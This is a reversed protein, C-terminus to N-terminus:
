ARRIGVAAEARVRRDIENIAHFASQIAGEQWGPHYSIQDGILYHRGEPDQVRKFWRTRLEDSWRAACGLMHNMRQWPISVGNEIYRRYDAHVKEGQRLAFELREAPALRAIKDGTADAYTYAGLIVGKQRHIGHSPYWIQVIDQMTWSIGGYIREREWFREKAQLGIKLLKGRPVATFAASYDAPFNHTIGALLQMPISNLCFDASVARREGRRRYVVAVGRERLEISEVQCRTQVLKGVRAMFGDVIRDMGGVPEMMMPAQDEMEAFSMATQGIGMQLLEPLGLVQKLEAPATFGGTARGARASGQYSGAADLDGFAQVLDRLRQLDAGSLPADLQEARLSKALLEAMFGRTDALYERIRIPKGGFAADDQLWASRNDNIFPVLEVGLERCYDLLAAHQGPIRAPGANFYLHPDADFECVQSHGIEDVRDGHRLTLNRGGARHSADLVLCDYGARGLEYAATLGAIGAGLIVVRRREHGLPAIDPRGAHAVVPLLGLGLAARYVAASGGAAGVLNLFSRRSIQGPTTM